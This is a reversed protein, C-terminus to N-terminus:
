GTGFATLLTGACRAMLDRTADVMGGWGFFGHVCGDYCFYDVAVGAASLREAYAKGEDILPDHGAAIVLAPPLGRLSPALLPSARWDAADSPARLYTAFIYAMQERTLNYGEAFREYSATETRAETVPYILIQACIRPGGADRAAIAAVTALTAGASDGGVAIRQRDLGLASAEAAIWNLAAVMDEVAAPFRHEPALRYDVAAIACGAANALARCQPEHTGLDGVIWGGGHGYVMVPLAQGPAMGSPRILRVTLPGGPGKLTHDDIDAPEPPLNVRRSRERVMARAEAVPLRHMPPVGSQRIAELVTAIQPNLTM